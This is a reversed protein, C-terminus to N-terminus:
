SSFFNLIKLDKTIVNEKKLSICGDFIKAINSGNVTNFNSLDINTLSKCGNFMGHMDIVKETIFNSLNINTISTCETFMESM